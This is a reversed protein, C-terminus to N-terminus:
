GNAGDAPPFVRWLAGRDGPGSITSAKQLRGFFAACGDPLRGARPEVHEGQGSCTGRRQEPRHAHRVTSPRVGVGRGRGRWEDESSRLTSPVVGKNEGISRVGLCLCYFIRDSNEIGCVHLLYWFPRSPGRRAFFRAGALDAFAGSPCETEPPCAGTERGGILARRVDALAVYVSPSFIRTKQKVVRREHSMNM